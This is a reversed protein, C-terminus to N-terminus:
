DHWQERCTVAAVEPSLLLGEIEMLIIGPPHCQQSTGRRPLAHFFHLIELRPNPFSSRSTSQKAIPTSTRSNSNTWPSKNPIFSWREYGLWFTARHFRGLVSSSVFILEHQHSWNGVWWHWPSEQAPDPFFWWSRVSVTMPNNLNSFLELILDLCWGGSGRPEGSSWTRLYWMWVTKLVELSLSDGVERPM